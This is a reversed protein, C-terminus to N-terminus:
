GGVEADPDSEELAELVKADFPKPAPAMHETMEAVALKYEAETAMAPKPEVFLNALVPDAPEPVPTVPHSDEGQNQQNCQRAVAKVDRALAKAKKRVGTFTDMRQKCKACLKPNDVRSAYTAHCHPCTVERAEEAQSGINKSKCRPCIKPNDLQAKWDYGCNECHCKKMTQPISEAM